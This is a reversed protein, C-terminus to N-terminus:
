LSSHAGSRSVEPTGRDPAMGVRGGLCGSGGRAARRDSRASGARRPDRRHAARGDARTRRDEGADRRLARGTAAPAVSGRDSPEFGRAPRAGRGASRPASRTPGGRRVAREAEMGRIAQRHDHQRGGGGRRLLAQFARTRGARSSTLGRDGYGDVGVGRRDRRRRRRSRGACCRGQEALAQDRLEVAKDPRAAGRQGCTPGRFSVRELM